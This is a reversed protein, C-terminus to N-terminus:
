LSVSIQFDDDAAPRVPRRSTLANLAHRSKIQPGVSIVPFVIFKLILNKSYINSSKYM